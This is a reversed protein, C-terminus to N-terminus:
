EIEIFRKESRDYRFGAERIIVYIQAKKYKIGWKNKIWQALLPGTWKDSSYGHSKPDENRLLETIQNIQDRNLRRKRGRGPRDRLGEVGQKEFRKCWNSVQKHSVGIERAIERRTYGKNFVLHVAYMRIGIKRKEDPDLSTSKRKKDDQKRM